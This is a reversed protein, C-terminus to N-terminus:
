RAAFTDCADPTGDEYGTSFWQKRQASSGHTWSDPDVASGSARALFDDGVVQAAKLAEEIDGPELLKREYTSHAWVGAFCDAQLEVRVSLANKDSPNAQDAAGVRSTVGVLNQIHHGVEHAVVYAEAFDGTVGFQAALSQFFRTDLYVTSDGSCYFPGVDDSETGCATTVQSQFLVLRAPSYSLGSATFEQNWVTQIDAFVQRLFTAQGAPTSLDPTSPPITPSPFTPLRDIESGDISTDLGTGSTTTALTSTTTTQGTLKTKTSAGCASLTAVVAVMAVIAAFQRRLGEGAKVVAEPQRRPEKAWV